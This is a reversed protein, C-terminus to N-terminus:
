PAATKYAVLDGLVLVDIQTKLFCRVADEPTEVIPEENDNFSTNLLVPVGTRDDFARLLADLRPNLEPLVTQLRASGDEHTVAPIVARMQPRVDPVMLMYPAPVATTFYEAQRSELVVPAFPRFAERHKVRANIRDKMGPDRPDALISRNGLARPGAESRGQFWGVIAGDAIERAVLASLDDPRVIRLRGSEAALAAEIRDAGYARGLYPSFPGAAPKWPNAGLEHYGYLASGLATGGDGAAPVVHVREFGTESLLKFNAVSNLAVGGALCLDTLGTRRHLWRAFEIVIRETHHQVAYALDARRAALEAAGGAEALERDIFSRMAIQEATSQRFEGSSLRFFGGLRAVYRPTGYAALGMTKGPAGMGGTTFLGIAKSVAEYMWGVSDEYPDESRRDTLTVRGHQARLVELGGAGAQYCTVTEGHPQGHEVVTSGRGDMVLVAAQEFPSTYFTSAAHALHHGMWRVRDRLRLTYVPNVFDNAIVLDVEDAGLGAERLVYDAALCRQLRPGLGYAIKVRTLREEEIASVVQGDVVLAACFDHHSGGLGLVRM